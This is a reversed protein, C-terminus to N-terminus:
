FRNDVMGAVIDKIDVNGVVKRYIAVAVAVGMRGGHGVKADESREVGHSDVLGTDIGHFGAIVLALYMEDFTDVGLMTAVVELIGLLDANSVADIFEYREFLCYFIDDSTPRPFDEQM